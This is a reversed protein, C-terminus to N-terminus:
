KEKWANEIDAMNTEVKIINRSKIFNKFSDNVKVNNAILKEIYGCRGYNPYVVFESFDSNSINLTGIRCGRESVSMDDVGSLCIETADIVQANVGSILDYLCDAKIKTNSVSVKKVRCCNLVGAIKHAEIRCSEMIISDAKCFLFPRDIEQYRKSLGSFDIEKINSSRFNLRSLKKLTDALGIIEGASFENFISNSNEDIDINGLNLSRVCVGNLIYYPTWVEEDMIETIAICNNVYVNVLNGCRIIVYDDWECVIEWTLAGKSKTNYINDVKKFRLDCLEIGLITIGVLAKRINRMEDYIKGTYM